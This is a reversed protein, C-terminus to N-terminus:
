TKVIYNLALYPQMQSTSGTAAPTTSGTDAPTTSDSTGPATAGTAGPTTSDTNGNLAAGTTNNASNAAGNTALTATRNETWTNANVARIHLVNGGSPFTIDAVASDGLTHTHAASTHTHTASVGHTHAASTHTHAASTHTHAETGSSAGLTNNATVRGAGGDVAVIVRGRLDPLNFTTSGDGAGYTTGCAAFLSAYTTRSVASGDCLLWGTPAAAGVYASVTGAPAAATISAATAAATAADATRDHKHDARAAAGSSGERATDGAASSAPPAFSDIM